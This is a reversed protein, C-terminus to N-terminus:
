DHQHFWLYWLNKKKELVTQAEGMSENIIIDGERKRNQETKKRNIESVCGREEGHLYLHGPFHNPHLSLAKDELVNRVVCFCLQTTM